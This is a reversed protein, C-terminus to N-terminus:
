VQAQDPVIESQPTDTGADEPESDTDGDPFLDADNLEPDKDDESHYELERILDNIKHAEQIFHKYSFKFM